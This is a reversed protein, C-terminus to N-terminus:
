NLVVTSYQDLLSPPTLASRPSKCPLEAVQNGREDYLILGSFAPPECREGMLITRQWVPSDLGGSKTTFDFDYAALEKDESSVTTQIQDKNYNMSLLRKSSLSISWKKIPSKNSSTPTDDGDSSDKNQVRSERRRFITCLSIIMVM